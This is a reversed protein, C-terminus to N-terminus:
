GFTWKLKNGKVMDPTIYGLQPSMMYDLQIRFARAAAKDKNAWAFWRPVALEAFRDVDDHSLRHIKTGARDFAKWAALDAKQIRAHHFDSYAQVEREVLTQMRPSLDNWARLNVTLDMLDVPQHLSLFGPPGTVVHDTVGDLGLDHNVAPGVYDAADIADRELAPLIEGGPLLTPKAGAAQFVEAVMGGPLRIRLDKFDEISRIPVRSHIVNAGHQIPGVYRLGFRAYEDRALELGGLGYFFTDWEAPHRLGLPYSSLFVSVPMQAEWYVSFANMGQVDGKRVADFLDFDGALEGAKYPEFALEGDTKEIISDCWERFIELGVGGPWSTQIKWTTTKAAAANRIYPGGLLAAGGWAASRLFRRRERSTCAHNRDHQKMTAREETLRGPDDPRTRAEPAATREPPRSDASTIRPHVQRYDNSLLPTAAKLTPLTFPTPSLHLANANPSYIPASAM